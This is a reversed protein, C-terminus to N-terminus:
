LTQTRDLFKCVFTHTYFNLYLGLLDVHVELEDSGTFFYDDQDSRLRRCPDLSQMTKRKNAKIQMKLVRCVNGLTQLLKDKLDRYDNEM